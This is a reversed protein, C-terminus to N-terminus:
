LFTWWARGEKLCVISGHRFKCFLCEQCNNICIALPHGVNGFFLLKWKQWVWRTVMVICSLTSRSTDASRLFVRSLRKTTSLLISSEQLDHILCFKRSSEPYTYFYPLSIHFNRSYIKFHEWEHIPYSLLIFLARLMWKYFYTHNRLLKDAISSMTHSIQISM